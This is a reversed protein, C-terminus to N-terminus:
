PDLAGCVGVIAVPQRPGSLAAIRTAARRSREPGMGTRHVVATVAGRQLPPPRPGCPRSCASGDTPADTPSTKTM